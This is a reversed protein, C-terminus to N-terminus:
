EIESGVIYRSGFPVSVYDKAPQGVIYGPLMQKAIAANYETKGSFNVQPLLDARTTKNQYDTIALNMSDAKLSYNNKMAIEIAQKMNLSSQSVAERAFFLAAIGCMLFLVQRKKM